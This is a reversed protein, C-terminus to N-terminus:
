GHGHLIMKMIARLCVRTNQYWPNLSYSFIIFFIYQIKVLSYTKFAHNFEPSIGGSWCRAWHEALQITANIKLQSIFNMDEKPTSGIMKDDSLNKIFIIIEENTKPPSKM